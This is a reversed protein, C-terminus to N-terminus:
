EPDQPQVYVSQMGAKKAAEIGLQSDEFVLCKEPAVNMKEAALLFLDPAPKSKEVDDQTIIVDFLDTIGIQDMTKIVTKKIGGSAVSIPKGIAKCSKAFDIVPEYPKVRDIHNFFYNEQDEVVKEPDMNCGFRDNLIKVTDHM